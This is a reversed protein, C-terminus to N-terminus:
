WESQRQCSTNTLSPAASPTDQGGLWRSSRVDSTTLQAHHKELKRRGVPPNEPVPRNSPEPVKLGRGLFQHAVVPMVLLARRGACRHDSTSRRTLWATSITQWWAANVPREAFFALGTNM